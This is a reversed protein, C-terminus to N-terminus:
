EIRLNFRKCVEELQAKLEKWQEDSLRTNKATIVLQYKKGKEGDMDVEVSPASKASM